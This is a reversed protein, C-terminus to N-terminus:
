SNPPAAIPAPARAGSRRAIRRETRADFGPADPPFPARRALTGQAKTGVRGGPAVHLGAAALGARVALSVTYTSLIAEETMRAAIAALFAPEWLAGDVKPSFADLFVADFPRADAHELLTTRADGLLLELRLGRSAVRRREDGLARELADVVPAHFRVCEHPAGRHLAGGKALAITADLVSRDLELTLVDLVIETGDLAQLAAAVNIGLGTGVDLLRFADRGRARLELAHERVRCALAYRERAELWAGARSHCAEGHMPHVLTPSGDDTRLLRWADM